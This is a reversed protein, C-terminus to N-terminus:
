KDSLADPSSEVPTNPYLDPRSEHELKKLMALAHKTPKRAKRPRGEAKQEPGMLYPLLEFWVKIMRYDQAKVAKVLEKRWDIGAKFFSTSLKERKPVFIAGNVGNQGEPFM